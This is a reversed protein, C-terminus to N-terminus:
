GNADFDNKNQENLFLRQFTKAYQFYTFICLHEEIAIVARM